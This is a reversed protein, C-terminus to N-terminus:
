VQHAESELSCEQVAEALTTDELRKRILEEWAVVSGHLVCPEEATCSGPRLVCVSQEPLPDHTSEIIEMLHIKDAPQALAYGGGRGRRSELLGAQTLDQFIKSLFNKPLRGAKAIDELLSYSGNRQLRVLQVMGQIAYRAALPLRFLRVNAQM